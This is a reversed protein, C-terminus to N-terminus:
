AILIALSTLASVISSNWAIEGCWKTQKSADTSPANNQRITLLLDACKCENDANLDCNKAKDSTYIYKYIPIYLEKGNYINKHVYLCAFLCARLVFYYYFSSSTAVIRIINALLVVAVSHGFFQMCVADFLLVCFGYVSIGSTASSLFLNFSHLLGFRKM